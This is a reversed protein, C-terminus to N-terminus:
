CRKRTRPAKGGRGDGDGRLLARLYAERAGEDAAVSYFDCYPCKKLCFPFHLYVRM